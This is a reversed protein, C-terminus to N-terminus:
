LVSTTSKSSEFHEPYIPSSMPSLHVNSQRRRNPIDDNLDPMILFFLFLYEHLPNTHHNLSFPSGHSPIKPTPRDRRILARNTRSLWSWWENKDKGHSLFKHRNRGRMRWKEGLVVSSMGAFTLSGKFGSAMALSRPGLVGVSSWKIRNKPVTRPVSLTSM